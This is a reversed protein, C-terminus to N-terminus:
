PLECMLRDTRAAEQYAFMCQIHAQAYLEVLEGLLSEWEGGQLAAMRVCVAHHHSIVVLAHDWAPPTGACHAEMYAACAADRVLGVATPMSVVTAM